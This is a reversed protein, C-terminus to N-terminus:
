ARAAGASLAVSKSKRSWSRPNPVLCKFLRRNSSPPEEITPTHFSSNAEDLILIRLDALGEAVSLVFIARALALRQKQGGSLKV